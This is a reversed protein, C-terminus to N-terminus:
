LAERCCRCVLYDEVWELDDYVTPRGCFACEKTAEYLREIEAEVNDYQISVDTPM